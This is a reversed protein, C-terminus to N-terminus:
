CCEQWLVKYSLSQDVFHNRCAGEHIERLVYKVEESDLCRLLPLSHGQKYLVDAILLYYSVKYMLKWAEAKSTPEEKDQLYQIIPAKGGKIKNLQWLSYNKTM